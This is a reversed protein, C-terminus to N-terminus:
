DELAFVVSLAKHDSATVAIVESRLPKLDRYFVHDLAYGFRASPQEGAFSVPSLGLEGTVSALLQWRDESWTNFDGALIVPGKHAIIVQSIDGLQKELRYSNATFNVGHINIVLLSQQHNELSYYGLLTTKPIGTLPEELRMGCPSQAPIRAATLVGTDTGLYKFAPSMDWSVAQEALWDRLDENMQAEQLLLLDADMGLNDLEGSWGPRQQKYINWSVLSISDTKLGPLDM